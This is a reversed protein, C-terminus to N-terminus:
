QEGIFIKKAIKDCYKKQYEILTSIGKFKNFEFECNLLYTDIDISLFIDNISDQPKDNVVGMRIMQANGIQINLKVLSDKLSFRVRPSYFNSFHDIFTGKITNKSIIEDITSKKKINIGWVGRLGIRNIMNIELISFVENLTNNCLNKFTPLNMDKNDYNIVLRNELVDCRYCKNMNELHLLNKDKLFKYVPYKPKLQRAILNLKNMNNFLIADDYKCEMFLQKLSPQQFMCIRWGQDIHILNYLM